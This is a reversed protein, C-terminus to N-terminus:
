DHANCHGDLSYNATAAAPHRPRRAALLSASYSAKMLTLLMVSKSTSHDDTMLLPQTQIGLSYGSHLAKIWTPLVM